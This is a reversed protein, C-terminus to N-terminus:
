TISEQSFNAGDPTPPLIDSEQSSITTMSVSGEPVNILEEVEERLAEAKENLLVQLM